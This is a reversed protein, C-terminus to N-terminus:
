GPSALVLWSMDWMHGDNRAHLSPSADSISRYTAKRCKYDSHAASLPQGEQQNFVLGPLRGTPRTAYEVTSSTVFRSFARSYLGEPAANRHRVALLVLLRSSWLMASHRGRRFRCGWTFRIIATRLDNAAFSFYGPGERRAVLPSM